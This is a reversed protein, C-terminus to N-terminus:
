APPAGGDVWVVLESQPDGSPAPVKVVLTWTEQGQQREMMAHQRLEPFRVFLDAAFMRSESTIQSEDLGAVEPPEMAGGLTFILPPPGLSLFFSSFPM